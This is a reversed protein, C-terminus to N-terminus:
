ELTIEQSVTPSLGVTEGMMIGDIICEGVLAYRGDVAPRIAYPLEMGDFICIFDGENAILLVWGIRGQDTSGFRRQLKEMQM